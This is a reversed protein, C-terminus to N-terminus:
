MSNILINSMNVNVIVCHASLLTTSQFKREQGLGESAFSLHQKNDCIILM